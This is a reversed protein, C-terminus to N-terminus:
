LHCWSQRNKGLLVFCLHAFRTPLANPFLGIVGPQDDVTLRNWTRLHHFPSFLPPLRPSQPPITTRGLSAPESKM